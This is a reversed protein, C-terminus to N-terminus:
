EEIDEEYFSMHENVVSLIAQAYDDPITNSVENYIVSLISLRVDSSRIDMTDFIWELMEYLTDRYEDVGIKSVLKIIGLDLIRNLTDEEEVDILISLNVMRKLVIKAMDNIYPSNEDLDEFNITTQTDEEKPIPDKQLAKAFSFNPNYPPLKFDRASTGPPSGLTSTASTPFERRKYSQKAPNTKLEEVSSLFVEDRMERPSKVIEALYKLVVTEESSNNTISVYEKYNFDQYKKMLVDTKEILTEVALAATYTGENNVILSFFNKYVPAMERLTSIDTGSFFTAMKNHSHILGQHSDLLEPNKGIYAAFDPSQTFETYGASGLDLVYLDHATIKFNSIDDVNGITTYFVIGSWERDPFNRCLYEIKDLLDTTLIVQFPVNSGDKINLFTDKSIPPYISSM